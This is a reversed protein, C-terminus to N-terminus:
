REDQGEKIKISLFEALELFRHKNIRIYFSDNIVLYYAKSTISKELSINAKM